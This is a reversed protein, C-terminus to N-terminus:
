LRVAAMELMTDVLVQPRSVWPADKGEQGLTPQPQQASPLAPWLSLGALIVALAIRSAQVRARVDGSDELGHIGGINPHNLSALVKAEREFRALRDPDSTFAEPLVKLAVDRDLKTDRAQWVESRTPLLRGASCSSTRRRRKGGAKAVTGCYRTWVGTSEQGECFRVLPNGM